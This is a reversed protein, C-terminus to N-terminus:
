PRASQLGAKLAEPIRSVPSAGQIQEARRKLIAIIEERCTPGSTPMTRLVPRPHQQRGPGRRSPRRSAYDAEIAKMEMDDSIIVGDFGLDNRLM